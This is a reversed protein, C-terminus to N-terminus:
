RRTVSTAARQGEPRRCATVEEILADWEAMVSPQAFRSRVFTAAHAGLTRQLEPDRALRGLAHALAAVDGAPVLLAARGDDALERAGSPCDFAICSLGLAMAELMANPFG